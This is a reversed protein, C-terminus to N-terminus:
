THILREAAAQLRQLFYAAEEQTSYRSFSIRLAGDIVRDPLGMAELVHSRGGKKCASSKSVSIGDQDLCNMLVESRYGPLSLSLIHPADGKGIIVAGPIQAPVAEALWDRLRRMRETTEDMEAMGLRVAEAFGAIAPMAETGARRGKEQGGGLILPPLKVGPSIYLAGCGKPGCIKHSSLSILDAGLKRVNIPVKCLGQVADTHLITGTKRRRIAAAMEGVSNVAGTENNVLMVSAFVTDPRLANEFDEAAIRGDGDPKLWTIEWGQDALREMPRRVADHEVATTIVHKGRRFTLKELGAIAWNDAESGGSTFYVDEPKAGIAGAVQERALDLEKKAQRGMEHTSSPNGYCEEMVRCMHEAAEHRVRTTAANDFYVNM